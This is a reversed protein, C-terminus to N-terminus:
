RKFRGMLKGVKGPEEPPVFVPRDPNITDRTRWVLAEDAIFMVSYIHRAEVYIEEVPFEMTTDFSKIVKLRDKEDHPMRVLEGQRIAYYTGGWWQPDANDIKARIARGALRRCVVMYNHGHGSFYTIERERPELLLVDNLFLMDLKDRQGKLWTKIIPSVQDKGARNVNTNILERWLEKIAEATQGTLQQVARWVQPESDDDVALTFSEAREQVLGKSGYHQKLFTVPDIRGRKKYDLVDGKRVGNIIEVNRFKVRIGTQIVEEGDFFLSFTVECPQDVLQVTFIQVTGPRGRNEWNKRYQEPVGPRLDPRDVMKAFQEMYLRQSTVDM